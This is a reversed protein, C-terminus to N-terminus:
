RKKIGYMNEFYAYAENIKKMEKEAVEKLKPGLHNVRDPHYQQCLERYSCKVDEKTIRGKLGLVKGYYREDKITPQKPRQFDQAHDQERRRNEEEARQQRYKEEQANAHENATNASETQSQVIFVKNCKCCKFEPGQARDVTLQAGCRPCQFLEDATNNAQEDKRNKANIFWVIGGIAIAPLLIPAGAVLVPIIRSVLIAGIVAVIIWAFIKGM